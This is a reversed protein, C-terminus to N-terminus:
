YVPPTRWSAGPYDEFCDNRSYHINGLIDQGHTDQVRKSSRLTPWSVFPRAEVLLPMPRLYEAMPMEHVAAVTVHSNLKRASALADRSRGEMM